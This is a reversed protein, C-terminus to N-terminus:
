LRSRPTSAIFDCVVQALEPGRDEQLFHGGGKITTHPQGAAGPVFSKFVKEGGKTIPDEDSFACLWPKEFSSLVGWAERQADAEPDDPSAPVLSPFIKAGAKQAETEFPADYAAVVEDSLDTSTAGQIIGGIPMEEVTRSFERWRLFSEPMKQDGTPLGTNATVVRAFRHPEAATLRLGILGGWDQCVLTINSLGLQTFLLNHTWSVHKAYTYDEQKALKDSRGFGILDPCVVRFGNRLFVPIMHRYLYSWSPEGHMCLVTDSADKPGEDIYAMRLLQTSGECPVNLYRPKYPFDKIASFRSESTRLVEMVRGTAM